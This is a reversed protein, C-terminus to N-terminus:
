GPKEGIHISMVGGLLNLVRVKSYKLERMAAAVGEQAPYHRLSELIYAHTDADGCLLRGFLPVVLRLYAFYLARWVRNPPKGFDLVLIRGGPGTVRWIERLGQEVGALNRLGYSLTVVDFCADAFPLNMADGRLFFTAGTQPWLSASSGTGTESRQSRATAVALMPGSFDLGAACLGRKALAFTVDGTGCCLDLAREGARARALRVLKRKWQRHLGLSQLDNILDYRSAIAAFLDNVKAARQGGPGYFKNAM